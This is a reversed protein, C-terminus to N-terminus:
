VRCTVSWQDRTITAANPNSTANMADTVAVSRCTNLTRLRWSGGILM